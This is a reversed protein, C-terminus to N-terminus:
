QQVDSPEISKYVFTEFYSMIEPPITTTDVRAYPGCSTVYILTVSEGKEEFDVCWLVDTYSGNWHSLSGSQLFQRINRLLSPQVRRWGIRLTASHDLFSIVRPRVNRFATDRSVEYGIMATLSADAADRGDPRGAILADCVNSPPNSAVRWRDPFVMSFGAPNFVRMGDAAALPPLVPQEFMPSARLGVGILVVLGIVLVPKSIILRRDATLAKGGDGMGQDSSDLENSSM